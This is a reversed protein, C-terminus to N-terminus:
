KKATERNKLYRQTLKDLARLSKTLDDRQDSSDPRYAVALRRVENAVASIEGRLADKSSAGALTRRYIEREYKLEDPSLHEREARDLLQERIAPAMWKARLVDHHRFTLRARREHLPFTRAVSRYNAFTRDTYRGVKRFKAEVEGRSVLADPHKALWNLLDGIYWPSNEILPSAAAAAIQKIEGATLYDPLDLGCKGDYPIRRPLDRLGFVRRVQEARELTM